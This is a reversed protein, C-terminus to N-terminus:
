SACMLQCEHPKVASSAHFPPAVSRLTPCGCPKQLTLLKAEAMARSAQVRLSNAVYMRAHLMPDRQHIFTNASTTHGVSGGYQGDGSEFCYHQQQAFRDHKECFVWRIRGRRKRVLCLLRPNDRRVGRDSAFVWVHNPSVLRMARGCTNAQGSIASLCRSRVSSSAAPIADRSM